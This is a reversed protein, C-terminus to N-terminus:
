PGSLVVTEMQRLIGEPEAIGARVIEDARAQSNAVAYMRLEDANGSPRFHAVEENEFYLRVGDTYNLRILPGFGRAANFFRSLEHRVSRAAALQCGALELEDGAQSVTVADDGRYRIERITETDPSFRQVM